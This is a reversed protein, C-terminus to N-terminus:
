MLLRRMVKRPFTPVLEVMASRFKRCGCSARCGSMCGCSILELLSDPAIAKDTMITFLIGNKKFWGWDTNYQMIRFIHYKLAESTPPLKELQFTTSLKSNGIQRVYDIEPQRVVICERKRRKGKEKETSEDKEGYLKLAFSTGTEILQNYTSNPQTFAKLKRREKETLKNVTSIAKAKGKKFPTSTSDSGTFCYAGLLLVRIEENFNNQLSSIKWIESPDVKTM